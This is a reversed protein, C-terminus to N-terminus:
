ARKLQPRPQSRAAILAQRHEGRTWPMAVRTQKATAAISKIFRTKM